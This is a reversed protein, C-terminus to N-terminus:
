YEFFATRGMIKKFKPLMGCKKLLVCLYFMDIGCEECIEDFGFDFRNVAVFDSMKVYLGDASIVANYGEDPMNEATEIYVGREKFMEESLKEALQSVTKIGCASFNFCFREFFRKDAADLQKDEILVRLRQPKLNLREAFYLYLEAGLNLFFKKKDKEREFCLKDTLNEGSGCIIGCIKKDAAIIDTEFDLEKVAKRIFPLMNKKDKIKAIHIEVNGFGLTEYIINKEFFFKIKELFNMKERKCRKLVVGLIM